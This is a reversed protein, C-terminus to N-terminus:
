ESVKVEKNWNRVIEQDLLSELPRNLGLYWDKLRLLGQRLNIQPEFGLLRYAKTCDAYLRLVDGPRPDDHVVEADARGAVEGIERALSKVSIECGTGLNITEGLVGESIGALLIGRATDSVNTFDRTQRGDGFIVMPKGALCRLLFKPIVEGSDGEHHCRPGYSNFPRVVVTPFGYTSYFARTYCEGALKSSGYATLPYTPHEETMPTWRAPGYVESSSVYVFRKVRATRARLLLNLTGTGNVEHNELPSHISHRVGLCALHFVIDIGKMLEAIRELDRIDVVVVSVRENSIDNLNELRGNVLNDVAVVKAGRGALQRVLESGIFGAGGTVLVCSGNLEAQNNV